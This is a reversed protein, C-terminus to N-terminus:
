LKIQQNKQYRLFKLTSFISFATKESEIAVIIPDINPVDLVVEYISDPAPMFSPPFVPRTATVTPINKKSHKNKAGSALVIGAYAVPAAKTKIAVKKQLFKTLRSQSSIESYEGAKSAANIM